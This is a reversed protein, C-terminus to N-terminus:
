IDKKKLHMCLITYHQLLFKKKVEKRLLKKLKKITFHFTGKRDFLMKSISLRQQTPRLGAARLKDTYDM